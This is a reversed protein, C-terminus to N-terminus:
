PQRTLEGIVFSALYENVVPMKMLVPGLWDRAPLASFTHHEFRTVSFGHREVLTQFPRVNMQNIYGQEKFSSWDKWKNPLLQGNEDKDWTRHIYQPDDYIRECTRFLAEEGFIIHAWPIPVLSEMHPAWPTRYPCWDILVKGSPRVIRAWETLIRDPEMIHEIVDFALLTDVSKDDIPIHDTAGIRFEVQMDQPVTTSKLVNQSHEVSPPHLEVGIISRPKKDILHFVLNGLGSGFDVVDRGTILRDDFHQWSQSLAVSRWDAYHESTSTKEAPPQILRRSLEFCIKKRIGFM